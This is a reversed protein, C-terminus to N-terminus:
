NEKGHQIMREIYTNDIMPTQVIHKRDSFYVARGKIFPLHHADTVGDGLVVESAKDTQIKFCLKADCNQKILHNLVESYPSQTAYILRYGLAAGMSAIRILIQECENKLAKMEKDKELSPSLQAAEDIIMFHRRTIGAEQVNEFGHQKLHHMVEKMNNDVQRLALFAEEPTGALHMTQPAHRYRSFALGGKLDLLSFSVTKPNNKILTTITCKLWVTKGYTTTGGVVIHPIKEFDHKLFKSRTQGVPVKWTKCTNDIDEYPLFDTLPHEYVRITLVRNGEMHVEKRIAPTNVLQKIQAKIDGKFDMHLFDRLALKKKMSNLGDELVHQKSCFEKFSKGEPIRFIYEMHDDHPTARILKVSDEQKNYKVVLGCKRFIRQIQQVDNTRRKHYEALAYISAGVMTEVFM